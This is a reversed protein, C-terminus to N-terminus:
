KGTITATFTGANKITDSALQRNKFRGIIHIGDYRAVDGWYFVVRPTPSWYGIDGIAPAEGDLMNKTPLSESLNAIKEDFDNSFDTFSLTLPLRKVLERGATTDYIEAELDQGNLNVNVKQLVERSTSQSSESTGQKISQSRSFSCGSLLLLSVLSIIIRVKKM